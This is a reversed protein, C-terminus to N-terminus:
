EGHPFTGTKNFGAHNLVVRIGSLRKVERAQIEVTGDNRLRFGDVPFAEKFAKMSGDGFSLKAEDMVFAALPESDLRYVLGGKTDTFEISYGMEARFSLSFLGSLALQSILTGSPPAKVFELGDNGMVVISQEAFLRRMSAITEENLRISVGKPLTVMASVSGIDVQEKQGVALVFADPTLLAQTREYLLKVTARYLNLPEAQTVLTENRGLQKELMMAYFSEGAM